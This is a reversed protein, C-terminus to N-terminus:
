MLKQEHDMLLCSTEHMFQCFPSLSRSTTSSASHRSDDQRFLTRSSARAIYACVKDATSFFPQFCEEDDLSPATSYLRLSAEYVRLAEHLPIDTLSSLCSIHPKLCCHIIWVVSCMQVLNQVNVFVNM